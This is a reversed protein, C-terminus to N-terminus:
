HTKRVGKDGNTAISEAVPYGSIPANWQMRNGDTIKMKSENKRRIHGNSFLIRM